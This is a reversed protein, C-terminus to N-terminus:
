RYKIGYAYNSNKVQLPKVYKFSVSWTRIGKFYIVKHLITFSGYYLSSGNLLM